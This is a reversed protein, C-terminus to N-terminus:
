LNYKTHLFYTCLIMLLISDLAIRKNVNMEPLKDLLTIVAAQDFFPLSKMASSRLSDQILTYLKNNTTLTAPPATFPQKPRAYVTDTLFPRAAERLIYKEKMGRILLSTPMQRVLEFLHHDLFPLRVEVAHAMELREAFLIYNPLISKSWLYLSQIVPERGTLQGPIDFQKLFSSYADQDVFQAAYDPALLLHFLSRTIAIEKLWYPIFGLIKEVGALAVPTPNSSTQNFFLDQRAHSYGAFIEDSGEGSLVVKYGSNHVVRSQLYRAVGHPNIALTEAYWIADALHNAFDSQNLPISQFDAGVYAATERAIAKEDYATGDFSVTFARIPESSYKAAMGLVTSSDVGGSLFCGVPVDARLRIRIAEALTDHLQKIYEADSRGTTTGPIPYDLDWYRVLQVGQRTALLYHGPPVQYVGAFLTRDQNLYIFLQQFFSERDWKAPVGAAFLAKVESALYITDGVLAYYLPKIGFRDRAAFLLEKSEDWLVFAFEGRLHELCQTGMEEYLHLAIESDSGTRFQHGRQKLERVIREFDYFEGNVVIRLNEAENAIPQEGTTLDIISLRTHGLGVRQHPAVWQCQQDPGRHHLRQTAQALVETSIPEQKSFIAVIGCM